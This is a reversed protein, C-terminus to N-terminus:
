YASAWKRTWMAMPRVARHWKQKCHTSFPLHKKSAISCACFEPLQGQTTRWALAKQLFTLAAEDQQRAHYIWGINNYLSGLWQQARLDASQEAIELAKQNWRLQQDPAEIIGLMHAADVAYFDEGAALAQEWAQLFLPRAQDPQQASNFVRGRELWYRLMAHPPQHGLLTQAQDLTQHAESFKRQLGQARALQTLLEVYVASEHEVTPLYQRFRQESTAPQDYDWLQDFNIPQNEPPM